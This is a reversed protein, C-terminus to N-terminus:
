PPSQLRHGQAIAAIHDIPGGLPTLIATFNTEGGRPVVNYEPDIKRMAVVRNLSDYGTLIVQVGVAEEPGTNLITGNVTYSSLREQVRELRNVELDRYYSGVYAPVAHSVFIQYQEFKPHPADFMLAFPAQEGMEILDLAVLADTQGVSAGTSDLLYAGIRVQELPTDSNNQVEGLIWLNGIQTDGLFVNQIQMAIPTPTATPALAEEVEDLRPIIIQQGVQLTRPDLIGNADQLAAVSVNYITAISLLSEGAQVTHFVPTPTLTPTATPEPTYPAPTATPPLSDVALTLAITPTPTPMPTPSLTIVQGCGALFFMFLFLCLLFAVTRFSTHHLAPLLYSILLM